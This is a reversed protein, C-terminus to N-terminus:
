THMEGESLAMNHHFLLVPCPSHQMVYPMVDGFCFEGFRMKHHLSLIVLDVAKDVSEEVIASGVERAQLLDTRAEVGAQRCFNAMEELIAESHTSDEGLDANLPKNRSVPIVNLIYILGKDSKTLACAISLAEKSSSADVVPVLVKSYKV